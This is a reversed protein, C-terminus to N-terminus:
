DYESKKLREEIELQEFKSKQLTEILNEDELVNGECNLLKLIADETIRQKQKNEYYERM